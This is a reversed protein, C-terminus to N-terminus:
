AGLHVALREQRKKMNVPKILYDDIKWTLVERIIRQLPEVTLVIIPVKKFEADGRLFRPTDLGGMEGMNLDLVVMPERYM